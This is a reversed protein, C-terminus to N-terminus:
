RGVVRLQPRQEGRLVAIQQTYQGALELHARRAQDCDAEAARRREDDLRRLLYDLDM